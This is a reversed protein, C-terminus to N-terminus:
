YSYFSPRGFGRRALRAAAKFFEESTNKHYRVTLDIALSMADMAEIFMMSVDNVADKGDATQGGVTINCSSQPKWNKLAFHLLYMFGTERDLRGADLDAKYFPYLIQDARGYSAADGKNDLQDMFHSFYLLQLAQWFTEPRKHAIVRMNSGQADLRKQLEPDTQAAAAKELAAAYRSIYCSLAELCTQMSLYVARQSETIDACLKEGIQALLADIGSEMLIGHDPLTHGFAGGGGPKVIEESLLLSHKERLTPDGMPSRPHERWYRFERRFDEPVLASDFFRRLNNSLEPFACQLKWLSSASVGEHVPVDRFCYGQILAEDMVPTDLEELTGAIVAAFQTVTPMDPCDRFVRISVRARDWPNFEDELATVREKTKRSYCDLKAM